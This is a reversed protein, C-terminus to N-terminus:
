PECTSVCMIYFTFCRPLKVTCEGATSSMCTDAFIQWVDELRLTTNSESGSAGCYSFMVDDVFGSTYLTDCRRWRLVSGRGCAIHLFNAFNPQTTKSNHSCLSLCVFVFLCVYEDCCEAGRGRTFYHSGTANDSHFDLDLIVIECTWSTLDLLLINNARRESDVSRLRLREQYM